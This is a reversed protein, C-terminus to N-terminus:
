PCGDMLAHALYIQVPASKHRIEVPPLREFTWGEWDEGLSEIVAESVIIQGHQALEVLRHATNVANGVLGFNMHSPAGISGMVVIGRDLGIGLGIDIGQQEQWHSRLRAFAQQMDGAVHLALEPAAQQDFPAGFGVMLEDGALDFITGQHRHIIEVMATYFANLVEIVTDPPCAATFESFGRLDAFLVVVDRRERRDLLGAEQALIRNVLKPSVYREFMQRILRRQEQEATLRMAELEKLPTIDQVVAVKGVGAVQSVSVYLSRDRDVTIEASVAQSDTDVQEFIELFQPPVSGALPHGISTASLGLTREVAPNAMLLNGAEDVVLVADTTGTLVASLKGREEQTHELLRTNTLAIAVQQAFTEALAVEDPGFGSPENRRYINLLGLFQGSAVLSLSLQSTIGERELLHSRGLPRERLHVLDPIQFSRESAALLPFIEHSFLQEQRAYRESLGQWTEITLRNRAEDLLMLSAAPVDLLSIAQQIILRTLADWTTEASIEAGALQLLELQLRRQQEGEYLHANRVAVAAQAAISGLLALHNEDFFDADAHTVLLVGLMQQGVLLPAAIVSGVPQTDGPLILWRRDQSADRVITSERHRLVWGGLGEQFIAPTVPGTVDTPSGERNIFQRSVRREQDLTIISCMGAELAQRTRTVIKSLVQDLALQSNIGQSISYLLALRNRETQLADRAFKLHLLSRVRATLEERNFPKSLFDDAGAEIGRVRDRPENLATLLIIPIFWTRSDTKLRDCVTFGDLGPMMVDLIILDPPETEVQTLAAQGDHALVVRYGARELHTQVLQASLVSDDVVLVTAKRNQLDFPDSGTQREM